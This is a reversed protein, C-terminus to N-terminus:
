LGYSTALRESVARDARVSKLCDTGYYKLQEDTLRDLRERAHPHYFEVRLWAEVLRADAMSCGLLLSLREAYSSPGRVAPSRSPERGERPASVRGPVDDCLAELALQCAARDDNDGWFRVAYALRARLAEREDDPLADHCHLFHQCMAQRYELATMM